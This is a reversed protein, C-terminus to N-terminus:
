VIGGTLQVARDPVKALLALRPVEALLAQERALRPVEALLAQERVLRPVLRRRLLWTM